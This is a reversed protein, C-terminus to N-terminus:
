RGIRDIAADVIASMPRCPRDGCVGKEVSVVVMRSVGWDQGELIVGGVGERPTVWPVRGPPDTKPDGSSGGFRGRGSGERPTV